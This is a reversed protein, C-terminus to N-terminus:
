LCGSASRKLAMLLRVSYQVFMETAPVGCVVDGVLEPQQTIVHYKPFWALSKLGVYTAEIM